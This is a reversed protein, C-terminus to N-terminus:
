PRGWSKARPPDSHDMEPEDSLRAAVLAVENTPHPDGVSAMPPGGAAALGAARLRVALRLLEAATEEGAALAAPDDLRREIAKQLQDLLVALDDKLVPESSSSSM